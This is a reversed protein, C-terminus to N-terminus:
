KTMMKIHLRYVSSSVGYPLQEFVKPCLRQQSTQAQEVVYSGGLNYELWTWDDNSIWKERDRTKFLGHNIM